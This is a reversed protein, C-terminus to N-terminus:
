KTKWHKTAKEKGEVKVAEELKKEKRQWRRKVEELKTAWEAEVEKMNKKM